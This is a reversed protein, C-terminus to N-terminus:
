IVRRQTTKDRRYHEQKRQHTPPLMATSGNQTRHFNQATTHPNASWLIVIRYYKTSTESAPSGCNTASGQTPGFWPSDIPFLQRTRLLLVVTQVPDVESSGLALELMCKDVVSAHGASTAPSQSLFMTELELKLKPPHLHVDAFSCSNDRNRHTTEIDTEQAKSTIRRLRSM